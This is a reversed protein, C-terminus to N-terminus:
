PAQLKAQPAQTQIWWGVVLSSQGLYSTQPLKHPFIQLM